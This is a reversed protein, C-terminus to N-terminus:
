TKNQCKWLAMPHQQIRDIIGNDEFLLDPRYEKAEFREMYEMESISPAMVTSIFKKADHIRNALNFQQKREKQSLVPFLDRRIKQFSLTDIISTDFNKNITEASITAYFIISKRLLDSQTAFLNYDIMNNFDYLDRAATRSLLANTKAAFIEIPNVTRILINDEFINHLIPRKEAKFIHARLSYNIEIKIMDLNKAANKYQYHFADLSHHFRSASSLNYGESEMYKGIIRTINKRAILMNEKTANPTFDMDIDVSLRPLDFITLNIATGGKLLLHERLYEQKNFYVLVEKLRLVKEFTDCLFGYQRATNSLESRNYQPM